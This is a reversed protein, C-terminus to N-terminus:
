AKLTHERVIQVQNIAEKGLEIILDSSKFKAGQDKMLFSVVTLYFILNNDFENNVSPIYKYSTAILRMPGFRLAVSAAFYSALIATAHKPTSGDWGMGHQYRRGLGLGLCLLIRKSNQFGVFM